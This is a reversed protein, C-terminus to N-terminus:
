RLPLCLSLLCLSTHKHMKICEYLTPSYLSIWLSHETCQVGCALTHPMECFVSMTCTTNHISFDVFCNFKSNYWILSLSLNSSLDSYSKPTFQSANFGYVCVPASINHSHLNILNWCPEIFEEEHCLIERTHCEGTDTHETDAGPCRVEWVFVICTHSFVRM